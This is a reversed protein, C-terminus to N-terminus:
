NRAYGLFSKYNEAFREQNAKDAFFWLRDAYIMALVPEGPRRSQDLRNSVLDMGDAVPWYLEPGADFRAKHEASAFFVRQGKYTSSWQPSGIVLKGDDRLSVLCTGNFAANIPQRAAVPQVAVPVAAPARNCFPMLAGNLQAASQYGTLRKVVQMEPTVILTTPLGEVQLQKVLKENQDADLHVPVFNGNVRQVLNQDLFTTKLMKQCYGCWPASVMVMLPKQERAAQQAAQPLDEHWKVEAAQLFSGAFVCVMGAFVAVSRMAFPTTM